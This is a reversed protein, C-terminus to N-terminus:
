GAAACDACGPSNDSKAPCEADKAPTTEDKSPASEDKPQPRYDTNHFGPGKFSVGVPSFVKRAEAGCRPCREEGSAAMSRTVEFLEDCETCRFDYDPMKPLGKQMVPTSGPSLLICVM